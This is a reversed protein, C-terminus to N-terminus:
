SILFTRTSNGKFELLSQTDKIKLDKYNHVNSHGPGFGEIKYNISAEKNAQTLRKLPDKLRTKALTKFFIDTYDKAYEAGEGKENAVGPKNWLNRIFNLLVINQDYTKLLKYEIYNKKNITVINCPTIENILRLLLDISDKTEETEYNEIYIFSAQPIRRLSSWCASGISVKAPTKYDWYLGDIDDKTLKGDKDKIYYHCQYGRM